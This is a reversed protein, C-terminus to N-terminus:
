WGGHARLPLWPSTPSSIESVGHVGKRISRNFLVRAHFDFKPGVGHRLDWTKHSGKPTRGVTCRVKLLATASRDFIHVTSVVACCPKQLRTDEHAGTTTCHVENVPKHAARRTGYLSKLLEGMLGEGEVQEEPTFEIAMESTTDAQCHVRSAHMFM